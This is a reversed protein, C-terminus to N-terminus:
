VLDFRRLAIRVPRTVYHLARLPRPLPLFAEDADNPTIARRVWDLRLQLASDALMAADRREASKTAADADSFLRAVIEAGFIQAPASMVCDAILEAAFSAGFLRWCTNGAALLVRECRLTRARRRLARWSQADCRALASAIDALQHLTPNWHTKVLNIAAVAAADIADFAPVPEGILEVTTRASWLPSENFPLVVPPIGWHLDVMTTSAARYFSGQFVDEHMVASRYGGSALAAAARDWDEEHVLLDLDGSPRRGLDGYFQVSAVPGKFAIVDIQRAELLRVLRVLEAALLVNRQAVKFREEAAATRIREPVGHLGRLGVDLWPLMGHRTAIRMFENWAVGIPLAADSVARMGLARGACIILARQANDFPPAISDFM